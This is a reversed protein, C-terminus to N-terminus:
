DRGGDKDVAFALNKEIWKEFQSDRLASEWFQM